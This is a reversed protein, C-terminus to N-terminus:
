ASKLTFYFTSGEGPASDVWIKGGNKEVFEKCLKLGLGSGSEEETGSSSYHEADNFIKAQVSESMGVGSDKVYVQIMGNQKEANIEVNGGRETFKVANYLLNRVVLNVMNEDAHVKVAPDIKSEITIEKHDASKILKLNEDVLDNLRFDELRTALKDMQVLTWDLLNDLLNRTTEFQAQLAQRLQEFEGATLTKDAMLDLVGSLANLPSRLDHSVVSFFKDKFESIQRLNANKEEVEKQNKILLENIRKRRRSSRSLNVIMIVTFALIVVLINRIMENRELNVQQLQETQYLLEIERDKKESEYQAQIRAFQEDKRLSFLSDELLQHRRLYQLALAFNGKAENLRSFAEYLDSETDKSKISYSIELASNLTREALAFQKREIQLLGIGLRTEMIGIQNALRENLELAEKYYEEAKKFEKLDKYLNGTHLLTFPLVEYFNNERSIQLSKDFYEKARDMEKVAKAWLGLYHNCFAVGEIDNIRKSTEMSNHFYEYALDFTEQVMYVRGLNYLGIAVRLQDDMEEGIKYAELFYRYANQYNDLEFFSNGMGNLAISEGKRDGAERMLKLLEQDYDLAKGFQGQTTYIEAMNKLAAGKLAIQDLVKSASLAQEAHSLAQVPDNYRYTQSLDILLEIRLSDNNTNDLQRILSDRNELVQADVYTLSALLFVILSYKFKLWM